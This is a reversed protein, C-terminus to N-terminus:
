ASAASYINEMISSMFVVVFTLMVCHPEDKIIFNYSYSSSVTRLLGIILPLLRDQLNSSEDDDLKVQLCIFCLYMMDCPFNITVKAYPFM